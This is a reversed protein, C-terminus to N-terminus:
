TANGNGEGLSRGSGPISGTDRVEEANVPLNNLVLAVQGRNGKFRSLMVRVLQLHIIISGIECSQQM